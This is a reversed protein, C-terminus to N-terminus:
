TWCPVRTKNRPYALPPLFSGRAKGIEEFTGHWMSWKSNKKRRWLLQGAKTHAADTVMNKQSQRIRGNKFVSHNHQAGMELDQWRAMDKTIYGLMNVTRCKTVWIQFSWRVTRVVTLTESTQMEFVIPVKAQTGEFRDKWTLVEGLSVRTGSFSSSTTNLIGDSHSSIGSEWSICLDQLNQM